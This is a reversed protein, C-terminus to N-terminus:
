NTFAQLTRIYKASKKEGLHNAKTAWLIATDYQRAQEAAVARNYCARGAIVPNASVALTEWIAAAGTWDGAIALKAAQALSDNGIRYIRRDIVLTVPIFWAACEKGAEQAKTDCLGSQDPLKYRADSKSEASENVTGSTNQPLDWKITRSKLDYVRWRCYIDVQRYATYETYAGKDSTKKELKCWDTCSADFAELVILVTNTDKNVLSAVTEWDLPSRAINTQDVRDAKDIITIRVSSCAPSLRLEQYLGDICGASSRYHSVKDNTQDPTLLDVALNLVAQVITKNECEDVLKAGATRDALVYNRVNDPL